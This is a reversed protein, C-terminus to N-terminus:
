LRTWSYGYMKARRGNKNFKDCMQLIGGGNTTPTGVFKCADALSQFEQIVQDGEIIGVRIKRSENYKKFGSTIRDLNALNNKRILKRTAQSVVQKKGAESIKKRREPARCAQLHKEKIEPIDMPNADGGPTLNYGHQNFLTKYKQIYYKEWHEWTDDAVQKLLEVTFNEEGYKAIANGIYTNFGHKKATCHEKFRLLYGRQTKGVYMKGNIKNTILYIDVM